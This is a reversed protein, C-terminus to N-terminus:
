EEVKLDGCARLTMYCTMFGDRFSAVLNDSQKVGLGAIDKAFNACAKDRMANLESRKM